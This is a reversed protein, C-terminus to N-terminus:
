RHEDQPRNTHRFSASLLKRQTPTTLFPRSRQRRRWFVAVLGRLFDRM